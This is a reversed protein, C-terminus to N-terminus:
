VAVEEVFKAMEDFSRLIHVNAPVPGAIYQLMKGSIHISASAFSGSLKTLFDEVYFDTLVSTLHIYIHSPEYYNYVFVVDEFPINAGLYVVNVRKERLLFYVYLLGIEHLEGEPLFLLFPKGAAPQPLTDIGALLKQRIINSTLHEQAPNISGTMWLFGVKDFFLWFLKSATYAIGYQAIYRDILSEFRRIDMDVMAEILENASFEDLAAANHLSQVLQQMEAESMKDIRSIKYGLRNLFAVRLIKKLDNNDYYRINTETRAPTLLGYRQEWIRLTHAKIGSLNEIDKITFRNMVVPRLWM